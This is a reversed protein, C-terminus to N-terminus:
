GKWSFQRFQKLGVSSCTMYVQLSNTNQGPLVYDEWVLAWSRGSKCLDSHEVFILLLFTVMNLLLQQVRSVKSWACSLLQGLVHKYTYTYTSAQCKNLRLGPNEMGSKTKRSWLQSVYIQFQFGPELSVISLWPWSRAEDGPWEGGRPSTQYVPSPPPPIPILSPWSWSLTVTSGNSDVPIVFFLSASTSILGLKTLVNKFKTLNKLPIAGWEM